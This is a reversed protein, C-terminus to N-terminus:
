LSCADLCSGYMKWDEEDRRLFARISKIFFHADQAGFRGPCGSRYRSRYPYVRVEAGFRRSEELYAVLMRLDPDDLPHIYGSEYNLHLFYRDNYFGYLWSHMLPVFGCTNGLMVSPFMAADFIAGDETFDAQPANRIKHMKDILTHLNPYFWDEEDHKVDITYVRNPMAEVGYEEDAEWGELAVLAMGDHLPKAPDKPRWWLGPKVIRLGSETVNELSGLPGFYDHPFILAIDVEGHVFVDSQPYYKADLRSAALIRKALSRNM